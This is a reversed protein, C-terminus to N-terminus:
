HSLLFLDNKLIEKHELNYIIADNETQFYLGWFKFYDDKKALGKKVEALQNEELVPIFVEYPLEKFLLPFYTHHSIIKELISEIQDPISQSYIKHIIYSCKNMYINLEEIDITQDNKQKLEELANNFATSKITNRIETKNEKCQYMSMTNLIEIFEFNFNMEIVLNISNDNSSYSSVNANCFYERELVQKFLTIGAIDTTNDSNFRFSNTYVNKRLSM